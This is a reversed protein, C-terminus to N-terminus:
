SPNKAKRNMRSYLKQRKSESLSYPFRMSLSICPFCKVRDHLCAPIRLPCHSRKSIVHNFPTLPASSYGQFGIAPYRRFNSPRLSHTIDRHHLLFVSFLDLDTLQSKFSISIPSHKTRTTRSWANAIMFRLCVDKVPVTGTVKALHEDRDEDCTCDILTTASTSSRTPLLIMWRTTGLVHSCAYLQLRYIPMQASFAQPREQLGHM